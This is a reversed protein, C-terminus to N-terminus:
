SSFCVLFSFDAFFFINLMVVLFSFEKFIDKFFCYNVVLLIIIYLLLSIQFYKHLLKCNLGCIIFCEIKRFQM